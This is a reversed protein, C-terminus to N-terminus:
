STWAAEPDQVSSSVNANSLSAAFHVQCSLVAFPPQLVERKGVPTNHCRPAAVSDLSSRDRICLPAFLSAAAHGHRLVYPEPYDCCHLRCPARSCPPPSPCQPTHRTRINDLKHYSIDMVLGIIWTQVSAAFGNRLSFATKDATASIETASANCTQLAKVFSPAGRSTGQATSAAHM